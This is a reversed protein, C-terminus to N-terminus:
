AFASRQYPKAAAMFATGILASLISACLIGLKAASTAAVTSFSLASLFLSMTFGIGGLPGLIALHWAEMGTPYRGINMKVSAWTIGAIGLPKGLLLGFFVGIAAPHKLAALFGDMGGLAVGCNALAFIPMVIKTTYPSIYHVLHDVYNPPELEEISMYSAEASENVAESDAPAIAM